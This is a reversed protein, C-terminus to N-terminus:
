SWLTCIQNPIQIRGIESSPKKKLYCFGPLGSVNKSLAYILCQMAMKTCHAAIQQDEARLQSHTWM